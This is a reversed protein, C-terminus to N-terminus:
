GCGPGRRRPRRRPRVRRAHQEPLDGHGARDRGLGLRDLDLARGRQGDADIVSIHTTGGPAARRPAGALHARHAAQAAASRRRRSCGARRARRPPPRAHLRRRAGPGARADGRRARRRGRRERRAGGPLRELLALGYAILVGGSSPPPNSLVEHGRSARRAGPPALRRPLRRPRRADARRRGRPGDRGDRARARRPLARRRRPPRDGRVHRRPRAAPAPRRRRAARRQPQQLDAAGEDGYRLIPDLIAHIHAQPRTLEIGDRALEIAPELLERWPLRGYAATCPRSGPSRARSGRGLGPRDPVAADDRQRRLRRRDRGDRGGRRRTLGLGPAAVFFDALRATRDRARHVLM